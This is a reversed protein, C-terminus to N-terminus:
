NNGTSGFGGDGRETTDLDEVEQFIFPIYEQIVLQAVRDGKHITVPLDSHNYLAVIVEGRYDSDIVGVKNAPALGQKTALGSRAYIGGFCGDPIAIAFGTGIKITSKPPVILSWNDSKVGEYSNAYLDWGAAYESGKTPMIANPTIKKIKISTTDKTM